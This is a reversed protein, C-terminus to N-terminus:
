RRKEKTFNWASRVMSELDHRPVFSLINRAKKSGAVLRPPDGARRPGVPVDLKKGTVREVARIVERVSAGHTTGLNFVDCGGGRLLYEMARIHADAIDQVHVYDRICTGDPTGYDDGFIRVPHQREDLANLLLRPILHTEPEHLEGLEGDSDAGAANFYRLSVWRLGYAHGYDGLMEEIMRKTRAYPSVPAVAALESVPDDTAGYLACTSSFVFAPLSPLARMAELLNLTGAVNAAYYAAPAEVSEGVLSKAAFHFVADPQASSLTEKLFAPDLIDGEALAGYRALSRHGTSFNDIVTVTHGAKVLSKAAHSGIYGAGGVVLVKAMPYKERIARGARAKM